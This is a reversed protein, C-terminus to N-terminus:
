QSKETVHYMSSHACVGHACVGCIRVEVRCRKAREVYCCAGTVGQMSARMSAGPWLIACLSVSVHDLKYVSPRANSLALRLVCLLRLHIRKTHSGHLYSGLIPAREHGVESRTGPADTISGPRLM